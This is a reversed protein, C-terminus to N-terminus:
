LLSLEGTIEDIKDDYWPGFAACTLTREGSFGDFGTDRYPWVPVGKESAHLILDKLRHESDVALVVKKMGWRDFMYGEGLWKRAIPNAISFYGSIFPIVAAHAVQAAIRGYPMHLDTRVAITMKM